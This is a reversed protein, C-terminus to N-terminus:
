LVEFKRIRLDGSIHIHFFEDNFNNSYSHLIKNNVFNIYVKEITCFYKSKRKALKKVYIPLLRM